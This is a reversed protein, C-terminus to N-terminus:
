CAVAAPLRPEWGNIGLCPEDLLSVEEARGDAAVVRVTPRELADAPVRVVIGKRRDSLEVPTGAPFPAVVRRFAEVVEPDFLTGAGEIITRVGDAAPRASAYMRESTIADYVDAVAAIRAMQHIETTAKGSPYGSGDWREHHRLVVSKVLPSWQVDDLLDVGARPHTKMVAWEQPTLRGPKNLIGLPVALKGIDHMMLGLGLTALREELGNFHRVGRYDLWGYDRFYRNGVMLGVATVDISHQFTYGDASALDALALAVGGAGQIQGVIRMVIEELSRVALPAFSRGRDLADRAIKFAAAVARTALTRTHDDIAPEVEIGTSIADEVYIACVGARLLLERYRATLAVGARLLPVGDARGVMVDRGLQAGEQVRATPILRM